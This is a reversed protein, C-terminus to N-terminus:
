AISEKLEKIIEVQRQFIYQSILAEEKSSTEIEFVYRSDSGSPFTKVLKAPFSIPKGMISLMVAGETLTDIASNVGAVLAIGCLSIDVLLGHLKIEGNTFLVEIRDKISVRVFRRRDARVVVYALNTITALSSNVNARFVNAIVDHKFHQSRLITKKEYKMVAIQHQHASLDVMDQEMYDISAGYSVPIENYFNLLRLDSSLTGGKMAQLTAVIQKSDEKANVETVVNYYDSMSLGPEQFFSNGKQM